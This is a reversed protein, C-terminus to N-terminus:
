ATELIHELADVTPKGGLPHKLLEEPTVIRVPTGFYGLQGATILNDSLSSSPQRTRAEELLAQYEEQLLPIESPTSGLQRVDNILDDLDGLKMVPAETYIPDGSPRLDEWGDLTMRGLLQGASNQWEMLNAPM